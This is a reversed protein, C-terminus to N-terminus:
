QAATEGAKFSTWPGANMDRLVPAQWSYEPHAKLFEKANFNSGCPHGARAVFSMEAAMESDVAKGEVAGHDDYPGNGWAKVGTPDLDEHGCLTRGDPIEKQLYSDYHDSLVKEALEVDIKGKSQKMMEDLRVHRSNPSSSLDDNNWNTDLKLVDPDSVFNSGVFVGDKSKWVRNAQLGNEFQAIEGTKNDGLLWDNAYGGNNGDLMIKVYDDISTAYQLAKRARVFEPKGNPDWGKFGSITTETVMLGDSNVGFDDDSIIVGPFGDMIIRFGNQPAIDFIMRWRAGQIYSTWNNHAMVIRHDKTWTGTAVFASCHGEPKIKPANAVKEKENFWPVYYDPLEMFANLAVVDDVDVAVGRAQAGEAIGTLEAQYESDIHPWLMDHAAKRFFNWDRNTDHTNQLKVAALADEIEPALLYGHQYGIHDPAGSLHVYTWGGREFRYSGVLRPDGGSPRGSAAVTTSIMQNGRLLMYAAILCFSLTLALVLPLHNRNSLM